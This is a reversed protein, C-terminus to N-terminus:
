RIIKKSMKGSTGEVHIVYMGSSYDSLDITTTETLDSKTLVKGSLDVVSYTLKQQFDTVKITAQQDSPNYFVSVFNDLNNERVGATIGGEEIFVGSDFIGDGADAIAIVVHYTENPTVKSKATLPVTLGDYQLYTNSANYPAQTGNGNAVFYQPNVPGIPTVGPAPNSTGNNINNVTITIGDPLRAINQTGTIGPGSIYIAMGDVFQSGVYEPYEESAFIYRIKLTDGNPVIDFSIVAANYTSAGGQTTSLPPYGPFGNDLYSHPDSNPGLANYVSGTTLLLGSAFPMNQTTASFYCIAGNYGTYSVNSISVNPSSLATSIFDQPNNGGIVMQGFSVFPVHILLLHFLHKM